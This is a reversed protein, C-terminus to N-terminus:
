ASPGPNSALGKFFERGEEHSRSLHVRWPWLWLSSASPRPSKKREGHQHTRHVARTKVVPNQLAPHQLVSPTVAAPMDVSPEDCPRDGCLQDGYLQLTLPGIGQEWACITGAKAMWSYVGLALGLGAAGTRAGCWTSRPHAHTSPECTHPSVCTCGCVSYVTAWHSVMKSPRARAWRGASSCVASGSAARAAWPAQPRFGPAWVKEAM